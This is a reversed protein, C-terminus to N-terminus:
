LVIGEDLAHQHISSSLLNPARLIVDVKRNFVARSAKVALRASLVAPNDVPNAFDVMLDIDGGRADNDLRSGFLRIAGANPATAYIATRIAAIDQHRLRM